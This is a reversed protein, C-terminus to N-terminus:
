KLVLYDPSVFFLKLAMKSRGKNGLYGPVANIAEIMAARSTSSLAGYTLLVDLEDVLTAADGALADLWARNDRHQGYLGDSDWGIWLHFENHTAAVTFEHTIQFEPALIKATKLPGPPSYTPRYFNFISPSNLPWQAFAPIMRNFDYYARGETNPLSFTRLFHVWRVIPERLKGWNPDSAIRTADRADPDLLIARIVAKLDGRVNAGNNNFAAAVRKVYAPSPNSTTFRQILQKAVFPGVNPHNFVTDLADRLDDNASRDAALTRGLFQKSSTSHYTQFPVMAPEPGWGLRSGYLCIGPNSDTLCRSYTFGTFVKALGRIDNQGYTPIPNGQVDLKQTGDPNLDWLGITFLQMIERAYNEDPLRGTAPNEKENGMHSLYLGMSSSLTVDELLQRYNGFANRNLVDLYHSGISSDRPTTSEGIVFIQSLAWAMRQLLQDDGYAAQRFVSEVNALPGQSDNGGYFRNVLDNVISVHSVIPKQFQSEIWSVYNSQTLATIDARTAGFSAQALFRAAQKRTPSASFPCGANLYNSIATASGRTALAGIEIGQVIAADRMGAIHRSLILADTSTFSGDGDVDLALQNNSLATEANSLNLSGSNVGSTLEAGRVGIAYRNFLVGDVTLAASAATSVSVNCPKPAAWAVLAYTSFLLVFACSLRRRLLPKISYL